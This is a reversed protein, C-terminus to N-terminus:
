ILLSSLAAPALCLGVPSATPKNTFAGERLFEHEQKRWVDHEHFPESKRKTNTQNPIFLPNPPETKKIM